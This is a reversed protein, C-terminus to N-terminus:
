YRRLPVSISVEGGTSTFTSSLNSLDLNSENPVSTRVHNLFAQFARKQEPKCKQVMEKVHAEARNRADSETEAFVSISNAFCFVKYGNDIYPETWTYMKLDSM